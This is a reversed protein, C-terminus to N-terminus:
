KDEIVTIDLAKIMERVETLEWLDVTLIYLYSNAPVKNQNIIYLWGEYTKISNKCRESAEDVKTKYLEITRNISEQIDNNSLIYKSPFTAGLPYDLSLWRKIIEKEGASLVKLEKAIKNLSRLRKKEEKTHLIILEQLEKVSSSELVWRPFYCESYYKRDVKELFLSFAKQHQPNDTALIFSSSSSNSVFGSRTKM